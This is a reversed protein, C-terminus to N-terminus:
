SKKPEANQNREQEEQQKRIREKTEAIVKEGISQQRQTQTMGRPAEAKMMFDLEGSALRMYNDGKVEDTRLLWRVTLWSAETGKAAIILKAKTCAMTWEILKPLPNPFRPIKEDTFPKDTVIGNWVLVYDEAKLREVVPIESMSGSNSPPPSSVEQHRDIALRTEKRAGRGSGDCAPMYQEAHKVFHALPYKNEVLWSDREACWNEFAKRYYYPEYKEEGSRLAEIVRETSRTKLNPPKVRAIVRLSNRVFEEIPSELDLNDLTPCTGEPNQKGESPLDSLTPLTNQGEEVSERLLVSERQTDSEVGRPTVNEVGRPTVDMVEGLDVETAEQFIKHWVFVYLNTKQLGEVFRAKRRIFGATELESIYRQTQRESSGIEAALTSVAPFCAGKQGAYRYLRGYTIKASDTIGSFRVMAEPIFVGYFLGFPNFEDGPRM